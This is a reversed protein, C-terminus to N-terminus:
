INYTIDAHQWILFVIIPELCYIFWIEALNFPGAVHSLVIHLVYFFTKNTVHIETQHSLFPDSSIIM